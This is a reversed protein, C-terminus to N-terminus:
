ETQRDAQQTTDTQIDKMIQRGRDVKRHIQRDTGLDRDTYNRNSHRKM